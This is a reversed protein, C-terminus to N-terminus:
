SRLFASAANVRLLISSADLLEAFLRKQNAADHKALAEVALVAVNMYEDHVAARLEDYSDPVNHRLLVEVAAIRVFPDNSELSSMLIQAGSDDNLFLLAEAANIKLDETGEKLLRRFLEISATDSLQALAIIGKGWVDPQSKKLEERIFDAMGETESEGLTRAVSIRVLPDPDRLGQLLVDMEQFAGLCSYAIERVGSFEDNIGQLLITRAEEEGSSAIIRYAAQRVAKSPDSCLGIMVSEVERYGAKYLANLASVQLETEDLSAMEVLLDKGRVDGLRMLATAASVRVYPSQDNFGKELISRAKSENSVCALLLLFILSFIKKMRRIICIKHLSDVVTVYPCFELNPLLRNSVPNEISVPPGKSEASHM